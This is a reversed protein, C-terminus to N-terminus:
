IIGEGWIWWRFYIIIFVIGLVAMIFRKQFNGDQHFFWEISNPILKGINESFRIIISDIGSM